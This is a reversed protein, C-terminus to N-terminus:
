RDCQSEIYRLNSARYDFCGCKNNGGDCPQRSDERPWWSGKLYVRGGDETEMGIVGWHRELSHGCECPFNNLDM